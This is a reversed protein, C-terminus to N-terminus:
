WHVDATRRGGVKGASEGKANNGGKEWSDVSGEGRRGEVM